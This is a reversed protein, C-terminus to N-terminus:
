STFDRRRTSPTVVWTPLHGRLSATVTDVAENLVDFFGQKSYDLETAIEHWPRDLGYYLYLVKRHLDRLLTVTESVDAVCARLTEAHESTSTGLTTADGWVFPLAAVVVDRSYTPSVTPEHTPPQGNAENVQAKIFRRAQTNMATAYYGPGEAQLHPRQLSYLILDQELDDIGVGAQRCRQGHRRAVQAPITWAWDPADSFDNSM